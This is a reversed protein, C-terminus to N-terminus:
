YPRKDRNVSDSYLQPPSQAIAHCRTPLYPVIQMGNKLEVTVTENQCKM